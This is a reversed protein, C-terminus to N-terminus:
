AFVAEWQQVVKQQREFEKDPDIELSQGRLALHHTMGRFHRYTDALDNAVSVDICGISALSELLRVTDTYKLLIPYEKAWLLVLYQVLFEIDVIGGPDHKLNFEESSGSGLEDRMQQRMERVDIKLGAEDRPKKLIRARVDAFVPSLADDGAVMRARVLAQHEWTWANNLQYEVFSELSTVLMGSYGSPRLRTDVDYLTGAATQTTLIHVIRQGLRAFFIANDVSNRGTTQQGNGMSDHLFVVDLDSGYGLEIGGMKGYGVIGFNVKRKKRDVQCMPTGYRSTMQEWALALAKALVIEAIATLYDSVIAVPIVGAIDAAAVRLAMAHRFQRLVDMQQEMDDSDVGAFDNELEAKLGAQKMPAFLAVPDLLQDLLIPFRALYTAIWDSADCLKVFQSLAAPNELLLSLYTTRGAIKEIVKIMRILLLTSQDYNAAADILRPMLANFYIRGREGLYIQASGAKLQHVWRLAEEPDDYGAQELLTMAENEVLTDGWVRDANSTAVDPADVDAFIQDFHTQVQQRHQDLQSLFDSWREFGMACALRLQDEKEEPLSHIQEDRMAQIANEAHRLFHYASVLEDACTQTLQRLEVLLPLVKLLNRQRLAPQRGGRLLQFVQGIFEIERIGGPGLKINSQQGKREVQAQIQRKLDRLADFTAFDLYRRYVFPRLLQMLEDRDQQRGTVPRAKIMAYREWEVGQNQYYEEIAAFSYVLSGSSGYPRLRMDVRFVFGNSDRDNLVRILARGLLTFYEESSKANRKKAPECDPYTFILDIDSSLNLEHAGMKGMALVVLQASKHDPTMPAPSKEWATLQMLASRVCAEALISLDQLTGELRAWRELDRWIIRLMERQRIFRLCAKLDFENRTKKVQAHISQSFIEPQYDALLDGSSLLEMVFEPRACCVTAVYDSLAFVRCLSRQLELNAPYGCGISEANEIYTVWKQQAVSQLDEPLSSWIGAQKTDKNQKTM